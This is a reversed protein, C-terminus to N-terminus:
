YKSNWRPAHSSYHGLMDQSTWSIDKENNWHLTTPNEKILTVESCGHGKSRSKLM